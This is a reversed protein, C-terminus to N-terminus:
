GIKLSTMTIAGGVAKDNFLNIEEGAEQLSLSYLMPLYHEPTPIALQFSRGQSEYRILSEHEGKCIYGNMKERAELAWDFGFDPTNLKDWAVMRLNHVLNGSGVILVGKRRLPALERGLEYHYQPPKSRDLSM